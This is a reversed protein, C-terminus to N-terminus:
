NLDNLKTQILFHIQSDSSVEELALKYYDKAKQIQKNKFYIDARINNARGAFVDSSINDLTLLADDFKDMELYIRAIRLNAVSALAEDGGNAVTLLYDIGAQYKKNKVANKAMVLASEQIYGSNAHNNKLLLFKESTPNKILELYEFRANLNQENLYNKYFSWGWVGGFGIAIGVIIQLTNDKLWKKIQEVQEEETTNVEIFNKM